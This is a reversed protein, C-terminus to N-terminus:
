HSLSAPPRRWGPRSVRCISWPWYRLLAGWRWASREIREALIGATFHWASRWHWVSVERRMWWSARVESFSERCSSKGHDPQNGASVARARGPSSENASPLNAQSGPDRPSRAAESDSTGDPWARDVSHHVRNIQVAITQDMSAVHPATDDALSGTPMSLSRASGASPFCLFLARECGHFAHVKSCSGGPADHSLIEGM